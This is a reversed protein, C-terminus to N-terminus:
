GDIMELGFTCFENGDEDPEITMDLIKFAADVVWYDYFKIPGVWIRRGLLSQPRNLSLAWFNPLHAVNVLISLELEKQPFLARHNEAATLKQLHTLNRTRGFDVINDRRRFQVISDFHQYEAALSKAPYGAGLGMTWTGDPGKNTWNFQTIQGIDKTITYVIEEDDARPHLLVIEIHDGTRNVRLDFGDERDGLTRLHELITTQDGAHILYTTLTGTASGGVEFPPVNPDDAVMAEVIDRAIVFLDKNQWNYNRNPNEPDPVGKPWDGFEWPYHFPFIRDDLYQMFDSHECLLTDREFELNVERLEGDWIPNNDRYVRVDNRKPGILERTLKPDSLAIECTFTSPEYGHKFTVVPNIPDFRGYVYDWEHNEYQVIWEPM